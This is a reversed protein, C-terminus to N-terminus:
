CGTTFTGTVSGTFTSNKPDVPVTFAPGTAPTVSVPSAAAAAPVTGGGGPVPGGFTAGYLYTTNRAFTTGAPPACKIATPASAPTPTCNPQIKRGLDVTGNPNKAFIYFANALSV